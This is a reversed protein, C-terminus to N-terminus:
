LADPSERLVPAGSGAPIHNILFGRNGEIIKVREELQAIRAELSEVTPPPSKKALPGFLQERVYRVHRGNLRENVNAAVREDDWDPLYMWGNGVKVLAQDLMEKIAMQEVLTAHTRTVM